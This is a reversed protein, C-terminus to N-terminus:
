KSEEFYRGVRDHIIDAGVGIGFGEGARQVISVVEGAQNVVPGGSQGPIFTADVVVFPGSLEEIDMHTNSIHGIRFMPQELGFGFGLSAVEDGLESPKKSLALSPREVNYARLVMLDKRDDKFIKLAQTGDVTVKDGDCHGATLVQHKKSDIMFGSCSGQKAGDKDAMEIFVVSQILKEAIPSWLSAAFPAVSFLAFLVFTIAPKLLKM